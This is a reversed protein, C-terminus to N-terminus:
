GDDVYQYDLVDDKLVVKSRGDVDLDGLVAGTLFASNVMMLM